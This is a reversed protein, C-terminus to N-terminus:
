EAAAASGAESDAGILDRAYSIARRYKEYLQKKTEAGILKEGGPGPEAQLYEYVMESRISRLEFLVLQYTNRKNDVQFLTDLATIATVLAALVLILYGYEGDATNIGSLVTVVGGLLIQTIRISYFAGTYTHAKREIYKIERQIHKYFPDDINHDKM